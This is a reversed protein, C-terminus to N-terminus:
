QNSNEEKVKKKDEGLNKLKNQDTMFESFEQIVEPHGDCYDIFENFDLSPNDKNSILCAYCFIYTDLLTKIEFPKGTMEEWVFMPRLGYTLNYNKGNIEM